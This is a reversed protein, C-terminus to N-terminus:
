KTFYSDLYSLLPEYTEAVDAVTFAEGFVDEMIFSKDIDKATRITRMYESNYIKSQNIFKNTTLLKKHYHIAERTRLSMYNCGDQLIELVCRSQQVCKLVSEYSIYQNYVIGNRHRQSEKPVGFIYFKSKLGLADLREYISLLLSLRGKDTGVFFVDYKIKATPDTDPLKFPLVDCYLFDYVKADDESFTIIADYYEKFLQLKRLNYAAVPNSFIFCLKSKSFNKQLYGLFSKSYSLHFSEALLIYDCEEPIEATYVKNWYGKFPLEFSKNLSWANHWKFIKEECKSRYGGFVSVNEMNDAAAAVYKNYGTPEIFYYLLSM